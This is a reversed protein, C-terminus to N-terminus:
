TYSQMCKLTLSCAETETYVDNDVQM